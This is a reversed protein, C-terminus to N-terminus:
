SPPQAQRPVPSSHSQGLLRMNKLVTVATGGPITAVSISLGAIAAAWGVRNLEKQLVKNSSYVDVDHEAAFDRKWSSVFLAQKIRADEAPDHTMTISEAVNGFIQFVGKPVGSVTDVPHTVLNKALEFPAKAAQKVSEGVAEITKTDKLAAIAAIERVLKRLAADSTVEFTGFDSEVTFHHLYDYSVVDDRVRFHAGKQLAPPLIDAAKRVGYTEYQQAFAAQPTLVLAVGLAAFGSILKKM